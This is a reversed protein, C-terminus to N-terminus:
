SSMFALVNELFVSPAERHVFHGAQAVRVIQYDGTFCGRTAELNTQDLAGDMDGFFALTPVSTQQRLIRRTKAGARGLLDRRFSWYYGLAGDLGGPAGLAQKVLALEAGSVNWNPSWRRYIEDIGAFNDRKLLTTTRGRLQFTLFHRGKVLTRLNFKLAGPHPIAIAVLRRISEPHLNAAAYGAFAGWDHGIVVAQREGCAEILALVDRGLTLASYDAEPSPASPPYGRMYPAVVRYGASALRPRIDSWTHPTDPFGHLLLVLPGTGSEYYAFRVGNASTYRLGPQM